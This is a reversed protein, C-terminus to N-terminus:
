AGTTPTAAPTPNATPAPTAITAPGPPPATVGPVPAAAGAGLTQRTLSSLVMNIAVSYNVHASAAQPSQMTTLIRISQGILLHDRDDYYATGSMTLTGSTQAGESTKKVVGTVTSEIVIAPLHQYLKRGTVRRVVELDIAPSHVVNRWTSGGSLKHQAAERAIANAFNLAEDLSPQLGGQVRIQGDPYVKALFNGQLQVPRGDQTGQFSADLRAYATGDAGISYVHLAETGEGSAETSSEPRGAQVRHEQLELTIAYVVADGKELPRGEVAGATALSAGLLSVCWLAM